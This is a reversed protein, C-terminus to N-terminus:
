KELQLPRNLPKTKNIPSVPIPDTKKTSKSKRKQKDDVTVYIDGKLDKIRYNKFSADSTFGIGTIIQDTRIFKVFEETYIKENKEEWILHETLLTDGQENTAVVNNKAEWKQEKIFQKAYDATLSSVTKGSADYQTIEMGEPFEIFAKGENEFQLLKPAKLIYRIQGSDTSITEFNVAEIVPLNDTSSFAKITEIDNECAYLFIAAGLVLAAIGINKIRLFNFDLLLQKM